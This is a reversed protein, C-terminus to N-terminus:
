SCTTITTTIKKNTNGSSRNNNNNIMTNIIIIIFNKYNCNNGTIYKKNISKKGDFEDLIEDFRKM